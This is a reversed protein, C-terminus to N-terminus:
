EAATRNVTVGQDVLPQGLLIRLGAQIRPRTINVVTADVIIMLHVGRLM